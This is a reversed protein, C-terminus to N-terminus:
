SARGTGLGVFGGARQRSIRGFSGGGALVQASRHSEGRPSSGGASISQERSTEQHGPNSIGLIIKEKLKAIYERSRLDLRRDLWEQEKALRVRNEGVREAQKYTKSCALPEDNLWHWFKALMLEVRRGEAAGPYGGGM